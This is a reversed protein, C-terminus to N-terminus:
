EIGVKTHLFTRQGDFLPNAVRMGLFPWIPQLSNKFRNIKQRYRASISFIPKSLLCISSKTLFTNSLM